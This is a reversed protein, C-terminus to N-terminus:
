EVIIGPPTIQYPVEPGDYGIFEVGPFHDEVFMKVFLPDSRDVKLTAMYKKFKYVDGDELTSYMSLCRFAKTDGLFESDVRISSLPSWRAESKDTFIIYM